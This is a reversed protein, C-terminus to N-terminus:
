PTGRPPGCTSSMVATATFIVAYAGIACDWPERSSSWVSTTRPNALKAEPSTSKQTSPDQAEHEELHLGLSQGGFSGVENVRGKVNVRTGDRPVRGSHALVTIEGTGDDVKYFQFPVLPVGWSSTVVGNVSVTKNYYGAPKDKLHPSM